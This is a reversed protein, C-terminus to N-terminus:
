KMQKKEYLNYINNSKKNRYETMRLGDENFINIDGRIDRGQFFCGMGRMFPVGIRGGMM